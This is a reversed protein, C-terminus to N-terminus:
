KRIKQENEEKKEAETNKKEEIERERKEIKAQHKKILKWNTKRAHIREYDLTANKKSGMTSYAGSRNMLAIELQKETVPIREVEEFMPGGEESDENEDDGDKGEEKSNEEDGDQEENDESGISSNVDSSSSSDEAEQEKRFREREEEERADDYACIVSTFDDIADKTEGLDRLCIGRLLTIEYENAPLPGNEVDLLPEFWEIAAVSNGCKFEATGAIFKSNRVCEAEMNAEIIFRCKAIAEKYQGILVLSKAEGVMAAWFVENRELANRFDLLADESRPPSTLLYLHGREFFLSADDFRTRM